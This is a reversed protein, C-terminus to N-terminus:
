FFSKLWAAWGSQSYSFEGVVVVGGRPARGERGKSGEEKEGMEWGRRGEEEGNRSVVGQSRQILVDFLDYM